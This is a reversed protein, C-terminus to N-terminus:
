WKGEYHLRGDEVRAEYVAGGGPSSTENQGTVVFVSDSGLKTISVGVLVCRNTFLAKRTHSKLGLVIFIPSCTM